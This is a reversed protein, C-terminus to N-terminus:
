KCAPPVNGALVGPNNVNWNGTPAYRCVWLNRGGCNAVACGLQASNRWIVQTFHSVAQSWVPAAFNYRAIEGYWMDVAGNASLATGWALNEGFGDASKWPDGSHAFGNQNNSTCRNAWDQAQASLQASWTLNPVCHKARYGNHVDLIAKAEASLGSPRRGLRKKPKAGATQSNIGSVCCQNPQEAPVANKLWCRAKPGQVGPKVYTWALCRSDKLCADRCDSPYAGQLDFNSYDSGPRDTNVRFDASDGLSPYPCGPTGYQAPGCEAAADNSLPTLMLGGLLLITQLLRRRRDSM